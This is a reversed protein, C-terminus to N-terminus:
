KTEELKRDVWSNHIVYCKKYEKMIEELTYFYEPLSDERVPSVWKIKTLDLATTTDKAEAYNENKTSQNQVSSRTSCNSLSM